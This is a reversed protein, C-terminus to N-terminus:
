GDAGVTEALFQEEALNNSESAPAKANLQEDVVVCYPKFHALDSAEALKVLEGVIKSDADSLSCTRHYLRLASAMVRLDDAELFVEVRNLRSM